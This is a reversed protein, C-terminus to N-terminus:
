HSNRKLFKYQICYKYVANRSRKIIGNGRILINMRNQFKILASHINTSLLFFINVTEFIGHKRQYSDHLAASGPKVTVITLYIRVSKTMIVPVAYLRCITIVQKANPKNPIQGIGDPYM